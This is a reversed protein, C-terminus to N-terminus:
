NCDNETLLEDMWNYYFEVPVVPKSPVVPSKSKFNSKKNSKNKRAQYDKDFKIAEDVTKIDAVLYNDIVKKLYKMPNAADELKSIAYIMLDKNTKKLLECLSKVNAKTIKKSYYLQLQEVLDAVDSKLDDDVDILLNNYNNINYKNINTEKNQTEENQTEENQPCSLETEKNQPCSLKQESDEEKVVPIPNNHLTYINNSFKNSVKNYRVSIYGCEVLLNFHKYYRTKSIKLDYIIKSVSPFASSGGGAYSSFYSYIAKSEISLRQDIMVMKSITGFGKANIGDIELINEFITM